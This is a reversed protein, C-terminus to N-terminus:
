IKQVNESGFVWFKSMFYGVLIYFLGSIIQSAYVNIEFVRFAIFLVILNIIYASGMSILFKPLDERHKKTSKFNFKKNLLYSIFFGILYGIFNALEPLIDIYFLYFTIGYGVCTNIIGILGYKVFTNKLM